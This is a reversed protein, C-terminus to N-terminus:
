SDGASPAPPAGAAAAESQALQKERQQLQWMQAYIGQRGLLADHSGREVIRGHEMVLIEDADAITSLRHAIILTTRDRSIRELEAEIARESHSDLASTAEDFILIPPNKLIARAIAIRQREGGSLKVGREGVETHYGAPLAQIFRHVHASNAAAVIQTGSAGRRGYGINYAIDDNFLVTDQPVVGIADRLSEQTIARIDQGDILIAGQQVEYFRLLLRALTSKGSGSGGVVAVTKGPPITFSIDHLIPREPEYHFSVNRFAVEGQKVQLAPAQPADVIEPQENLLRLLQEANTQADKAERYVFGLTNLPLCVQIVYANILVLDGVTLSGRVVALGALLMVATVGLGIILSQGVHLIFLAKQNRVMADVWDNLIHRLRQAEAVEGTFFKVNDYNILSDALRGKANTDLRNVRRQHLTRRSTFIFTFVSYVAFTAIMIGAFAAPYNLLIIGLVMAFEVLTPVLTFLGAGLLFGVGNTGRDIDRLLGGTRRRAHFRPSLAHLHVFVRHAYGSVINQTVRSFVLDRLENFLTGAFRLVAYGVLLLVPLSQVQEPRSLADIVAKLALPVAVVAVKALLLLALAALVRSRFRWAAALLERMVPHPASDQRPSATPAPM